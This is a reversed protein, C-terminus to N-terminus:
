PWNSAMPEKESGTSSSEPIPSRFIPAADSVQRAVAIAVIEVNRAKFVVVLIDQREAGRDLPIRRVREGNTKRAVPRVIVGVRFGAM